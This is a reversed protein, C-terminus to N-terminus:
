PFIVSTNIDTINDSPVHAAKKTMIASDAGLINEHILIANLEPLWQIYAHCEQDVTPSEIISGAAM